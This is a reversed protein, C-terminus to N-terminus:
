DKCCAGYGLDNFYKAKSVHRDFLVPQSPVILARAPQESGPYILRHSRNMIGSWKDPGLVKVFGAESGSFRFRVCWAVHLLTLTSSLVEQPPLAQTRQVLVGTASRRNVQM